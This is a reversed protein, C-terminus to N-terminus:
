HRDIPGSTRVRVTSNGFSSLSYVRPKDGSALMASFVVDAAPQGPPTFGPAVNSYQGNCFEYLVPSTIYALARKELSQAVEESAEFLDGEAIRRPGLKIYRLAKLWVSM